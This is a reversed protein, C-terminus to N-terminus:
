SPRHSAKEKKFHLMNCLLYFCYESVNKLCVRLSFAKGPTKEPYMTVNKLACVCVLICIVTVLIMMKMRLEESSVYGSCLKIRVVDPSM